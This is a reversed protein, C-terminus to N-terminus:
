SNVEVPIDDTDFDSHNNHYLSFVISTTGAAEGHVHFRWKGDEDHQEVEAVTPDEVDFNLSYEPEDPQFQDGDESLFFISILATEEGENLTIGGTVQGNEYRAIEEGNLMLVAGVPEEHHEEESDAPNSCAAVTTLLVLVTLTIRNNTSFKM